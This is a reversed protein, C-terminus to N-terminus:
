EWEITAPPKSTVDFAVRNVGRVENCIRRAVRDLLDHPLRAWDATMGDQSEVARLVIAEAYTRVDGMVGVSRTPLLVCFSQWLKGYLGAARVEELFVADAARLVELRESTVEGLCRVALGPGPFPQRELISVPISLLKGIQRVEDKFLDRLPELIKMRMESPLGGVNHHSKIVSAGKGRFGSEIVDPYLTGQLLWEGGITKAEEEFVRIFTHGIIKRKEEPDTVGKLATLFRSSADVARVDLDLSRYAEMVSQAEKLRLLGNDVFVCKLKKGVARSTLVAAVTSDVGGSLACLVREEGVKKRIDAITSDIWDSLKWTPKCGCIDFLFHRLIDIGFMTHAVEPHFQVAWIRDGVSFAEIEGVEGWAIAKAGAPLSEVRDWHSMWVTIEEPLGKFLASSGDLRVKSRGYEARPATRVSGGLQYALMQMGYCIGLVPVTGSLFAPDIRPAGEEVVSRPGGSIVIGKPHSELIEEAPADWPLIESHVSLERIRRAILQTYQSGCDLIVINDEVKM